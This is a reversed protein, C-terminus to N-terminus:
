TRRGSSPGSGSWARVVLGFVVLVLSGVAVVPLNAPLALLVAAGAGAITGIPATLLCARFPRPQTLGVALGVFLGVIVGAAGRLGLLDEDVNPQDVVLTRTAGLFIAAVATLLLISALSFGARRAAPGHRRRNRIKM